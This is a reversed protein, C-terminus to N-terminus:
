WHKRWTFYERGYWDVRSGIGDKQMADYLSHFANLVGTFGSEINGVAETFDVTFLGNASYRSELLVRMSQALDEFAQPTM